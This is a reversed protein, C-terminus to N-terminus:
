AQLLCKATCQLGVREAFVNYVYWRWGVVCLAFMIAKCLHVVVSELLTLYFHLLVGVFCEMTCTVLVSNGKAKGKVDFCLSRTNCVYVPMCYVDFRFTKKKRLTLLCTAKGVCIFHM